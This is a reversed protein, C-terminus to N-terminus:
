EERYPSGSIEPLPLFPKRSVKWIDSSPRSAPSPVSLTPVSRREPCIGRRLTRKIRPSSSVLSLFSTSVVTDGRKKKSTSGNQASRQPCPGFEADARIVPHRLCSSWEPGFSSRAKSGRSREWVSENKWREYFPRESPTCAGESM